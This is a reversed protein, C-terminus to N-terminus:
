KESIECVALSEENILTEISQREGVKIRPIEVYTEFYDNLKLPSIRRKLMMLINENEKRKLQCRRLRLRSIESLWDKATNFSLIM